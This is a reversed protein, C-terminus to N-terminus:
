WAALDGSVGLVRFLVRYTMDLVRDPCLRVFYTAAWSDLGVVYRSEPYPSSIAAFIAQSAKSPSVEVWSALRWFASMIDGVGVYDSSESSEIVNDHFNTNVAGPQILSVSVGFRTMEMRLSDTMGELAFKSAAYSSFFPFPTFGMM